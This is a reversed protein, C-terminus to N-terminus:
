HFAVILGHISVIDTYSWSLVAISKTSSDTAGDIGGAPDDQYHLSGMCELAAEM